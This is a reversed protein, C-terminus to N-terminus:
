YDSHPRVMRATGVCNNRSFSLLTRLLVRLKNSVTKLGYSALRLDYVACFLDSYDENASCDDPISLIQECRVTKSNHKISFFFSSLLLLFFIFLISIKM